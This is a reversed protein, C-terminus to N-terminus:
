LDGYFIVRHGVVVLQRKYRGGGTLNVTSDLWEYQETIPNYGWVKDGNYVNSRESVVRLDLPPSQTTFTWDDGTTTLGTETDYTDVRWTYTTSYSLGTLPKIHGTTQGQLDGGLYVKSIIM